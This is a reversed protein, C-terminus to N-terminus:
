GSLFESKFIRLLLLTGSLLLPGFLIGWFGFLNLGLIVGLLTILPHINAYKKLFVMRIINDVSAVVSAGWILLFIGQWINQGVLLNISLPLWIGATGVVPILGFLGTAFGWLVPDGAGTMWYGFGALLSQGFIIMPIGIANSVVIKNTEKKLLSVSSKSLPILDEMSREFEASQHLMFFLIFIMMALNAIVNGTTSIVGPLVNGVTSVVKGVIDESFINYEWRQVIVDRIHQISNFVVQPHFYRLKEYVIWVLVGGIILVIIFSFLMLTTTAIWNKWGRQLMKQHPKRLILYLTFSALISSLFYRLEVVVVCVLILILLLFWVQKLRENYLKGTYM